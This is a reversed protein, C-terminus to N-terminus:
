GDEPLGVASRSVPYRQLHENWTELNFVGVKEVINRKWSAPQVAKAPLDRKLQDQLNLLLAKDLAQFAILLYYHITKGQLKEQAWLYIFTDRFKRVAESALDHHVIRSRFGRLVRQRVDDSIPRTQVEDPDKIEILLLKEGDEVIFDVAKMCHSLGHRRDDFKEGTAGSPLDICLTRERLQTAM